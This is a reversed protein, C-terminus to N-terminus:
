LSLSLSVFVFLYVSLSLSLSLILFSSLFLRLSLTVDTHLTFFSKYRRYVRYSFNKYAVDISYVAYRSTGSGWVAHGSITAEVM